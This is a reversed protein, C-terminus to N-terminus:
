LKAEFEVISQGDVFSSDRPFRTREAHNAPPFSHCLHGVNVRWGRCDSTGVRVASGGTISSSRSGWNLTISDWLPSYRM